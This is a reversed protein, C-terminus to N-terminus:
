VLALTIPLYREFDAIPRDWCFLAPFSELRFGARLLAAVLDGADGPVWLSSAGAPVHAGLLHGVVPALLGPELTAVPGVRGVRAVYGYGVARGDGDRYLWGLRGDRRM